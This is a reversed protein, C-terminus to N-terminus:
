FLNVTMSSLRRVYKYTYKRLLNSIQDNKFIYNNDIQEM